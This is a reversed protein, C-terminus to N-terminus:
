RHAALLGRIAALVEAPQYMITTAALRLTTYGLAASAADRRRDEEYKARGAHFEVSDCEIILWGDVVFDVRGVGTISVQPIASCGLGRLMLRVLSEPGSESRPDVLSAIVAFRAPLQRFIDALQWAAIHGRRIASDLTAVAARPTQCCVSHALADVIDVCAAAAPYETLRAWHLTVARRSRDELRKSRDSPSRLRAANRQVHVHLRDNTLVFVGLLQLLSLCTLRGGVRVAQVVAEVTGGPLYNDRRGRILTDARVAATIDRSRYGLALLEARSMLEIM